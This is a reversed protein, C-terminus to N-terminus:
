TTPANDDVLTQIDGIINQPFEDGGRGDAMWCLQGPSLLRDM